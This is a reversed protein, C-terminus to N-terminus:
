RRYRRGNRRAEPRGRRSNDRVFGASTPHQVAPQAKSASNFLGVVNQIMPNVLFSLHFFFLPRPQAPPVTPTAVREYHVEKRRLEVTQPVNTNLVQKRVHLKEVLLLRKTVVLEKRLVPVTM